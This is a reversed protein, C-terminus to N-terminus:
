KLIGMMLFLDYLYGALLGGVFIFLIYLCVVKKKMFSLLGVMVWASTAQGTIWFALMAGGSAGQALLAKILPIAAETTVYLPLGILAALPVATINKAGLVGAILSTPVFKNILFGIAVFITYYLLMNKVGINIICDWIERWKITKVFALFDSGLNKTPVVQLNSCCVQKPSVQLNSCCAQKPIPAADSCDCTQVLIPAADSCSCNPIQPKESFRTQNKLFDTKTEILHTLFGSGLGIVISAIALATAFKVSILGAVMIFDAPSMLPSSTLFAMIPGWPLVTTLLGVILGLTGAACLPTFAGFLTSGLISVKPKEILKQKFKEPNIYARLIAVTLIALTLTYWGHSLAEIIAIAMQMLLLSLWTILKEM